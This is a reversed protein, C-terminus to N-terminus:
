YAFRESHIRSRPLGLAALSAELRDMMPLPGCLYVDREAIDPLLRRLAKPGLPDGPLEASGRRGVVYRITAGRRAALDDLEDRLVVHKAARARYILALEGPQAPLAEMLARLPAIGIGGAILAVKRRTRRAGTLIGYPGEVFVRGGVPLRHLARTSDGLAKVTIRLWEGNPAASLSFPHAHWWGPGGLFRWTFWQGSRVALRDLHHGTVYISYVGPGEMEVRAVRLRHRLNLVIPQGFRFTAVLAVTAVYLGIWYARALPDHMFDGGVALQHLFGLAIGVYALLHILYWREYSLRRRAARVSTVGVAVFLGFGVVSLAVFDFTTLITWSEGLLTRGDGVAYGAVTFIGHAVVLWIASFGLWRHAWALRDMGFLQDLWPSRSMLVLELLTAYAAYLGTLQGIATLLGSPTGLDDLGGHRVWMALILVANAAIAWAVDVHIVPWHRPMPLRRTVPRSVAGSVGGSLAGSM